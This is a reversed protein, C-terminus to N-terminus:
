VVLPTAHSLSSGINITRQEPIHQVSHKGYEENIDDYRTSNIRHLAKIPFGLISSLSLRLEYIGRKAITVGVLMSDQHPYPLSV